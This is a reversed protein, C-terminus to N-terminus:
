RQILPLYLRNLVPNDAGEQLVAFTTLHDLMAMLVNNDVDVTTPIAIWTQQAEHWYHLTLQNEDLGQVAADTYHITLTFPQAFQTVSTGGQTVANITFIQNLVQFGSTAPPSDAVKITVRLPENVAGAPLAFTLRLQDLTAEM